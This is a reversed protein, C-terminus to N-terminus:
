VYLQKHVHLFEMKEGIAYFNQVNEILNKWSVVVSADTCLLLKENMFTLPAALPMAALTQTLLM